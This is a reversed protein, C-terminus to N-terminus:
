QYDYSDSSIDPEESFLCSGDGEMIHLQGLLLAQKQFSRTNNQLQRNLLFMPLKSEKSSMNLIHLTINRLAMITYSMDNINLTTTSSTINRIFELVSPNFAENTMIERVSCGEFDMLLYIGDLFTICCHELERARM